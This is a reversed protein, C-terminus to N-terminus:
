ASLCYAFYISKKYDNNSEPGRGHFDLKIRNEIDDGFNSPQNVFDRSARRDYYSFSADSFGHFRKTKLHTLFAEFLSSKGSGNPGLLVILRADEPLDLIRLDSFRKFKKIHASKLKM